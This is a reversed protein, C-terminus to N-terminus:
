RDDRRAGFTLFGAVAPEDGRNIWRHRTGNQVILDGPYLWQTEGSDLEVGLEGSIMWGVDVSDTQHMGDGGGDMIADLAGGAAAADGDRLFHLLTMRVGSPPPFYGGEHPPEEATTPLRFPLDDEGWM